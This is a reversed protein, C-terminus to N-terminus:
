IFFGDFNTTGFLQYHLVKLLGSSKYKIHLGKLIKSFEVVAILYFIDPFVAVSLRGYLVIM